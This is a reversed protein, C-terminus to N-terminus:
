RYNVSYKCLFIVLFIYRIIGFWENVNIVSEPYNCGLLVKSNVFFPQCRERAILRKPNDKNQPNKSNFVEGFSTRMRYRSMRRTREM